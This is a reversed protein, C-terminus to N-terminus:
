TNSVDKSKKRFFLGVRSSSSKQLKKNSHKDKKVGNVNMLKKHSTPSSAYSNDSFYEEKISTASLPVTETFFLNEQSDAGRLHQPSEPYTQINLSKKQEKLLKKQRLRKVSDDMSSHRNRLRRRQLLSSASSEPSVDFNIKDLNDASRSLVRTPPLPPGISSNSGSSGGGSGSHRLVQKRNIPIGASSVSLRADVHLPKDTLSLSDYPNTYIEEYDDEDNLSELSLTKLLPPPEVESVRKIPQHKRRSSGRVRVLRRPCESAARTERDQCCSVPPSVDSKSRPKPSQLLADIPTQYPPDNEESPPTPSPSPTLERFLPSSYHSTLSPKRPQPPRPPIAKVSKKKCKSCDKTDGYLIESDSFSRTLGQVDEKYMIVTYQSSDDSQQVVVVYFYILLVYCLSYPLNKKQDIYM